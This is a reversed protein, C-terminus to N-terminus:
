AADPHLSFHMVTIPCAKGVAGPYRAPIEASPKFM